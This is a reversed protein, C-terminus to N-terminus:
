RSPYIKIQQMFEYTYMFYGRDSLFTMEIFVFNPDHPSNMHLKDLNAKVRKVVIGIQLFYQAFKNQKMKRAKLDYIITLNSHLM